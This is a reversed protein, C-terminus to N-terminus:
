QRQNLKRRREGAGALIRRLATYDQRRLLGEFRTMSNVLKKLQKRIPKDNTRIIDLWVDASGGAIRTSDRFGPGCLAVTDTGAKQLVSDSLVAAVIHPLHSTGAVIADHQGADMIRVSAGVKRWLSVVERVARASAARPPTVVVVANEYLDARAAEIGSEDSGAIPHSGVFHVTRRGLAMSAKRMIVAKTSGVDTVIAGKKFHAQCRRIFEPIRLVPLCFVVLDAGEVAAEPSDFARDIMRRHLAERRTAARRAFGVLEVPIRRKRLAMCLSAGMLGLGVIAVRKM